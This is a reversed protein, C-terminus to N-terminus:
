ARPRCMCCVEPPLGIRLGLLSAHVRLRSTAQNSPARISKQKSSRTANAGILTLSACKEWYVAHQLGQKRKRSGAKRPENQVSPGETKTVELM